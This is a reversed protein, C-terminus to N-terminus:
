TMSVAAIQLASLGFSRFDPSSAKWCIIGAVLHQLKQGPTKVGFCVGNWAPGWWFSASRMRSEQDNVCVYVFPTHTDMIQFLCNTVALSYRIASGGAQGVQQPVIQESSAALNVAFVHDRCSIFCLWRPNLTETHDNDNVKFILFLVLSSGKM